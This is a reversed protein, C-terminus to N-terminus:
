KRAGAFWLIDVIESHGRSVAAYLATQKDLGFPPAHVDAGAAILTEVVEVHGGRVAAQLATDGPGFLPGNVNVGADILVEVMELHGRGAAEHLAGSTELGPTSNLDVGAAILERVRELSGEAVAARLAASGNRATLLGSSNQPSNKRTDKITLDADASLLIEVLIIHNKSVAAHLASQGSDHKSTYNVNVGAEILAKVIISHGRAAAAYLANDADYPLLDSLPQRARRAAATQHQMIRNFVKHHSNRAALYLASGNVPSVKADASSKLLIHVIKLNGASAAKQLPTEYLVGTDSRTSVKSTLELRNRTNPNAGFALLIEVAELRNHLTAAYLASVGKFSANGNFGNSSHSSVSALIRYKTQDGMLDGQYEIVYQILSCHDTSLAWRLIYDMLRTWHGGFDEETVYLVGYRDALQHAMDHSCTQYHSHSQRINTDIVDRINVDTTPQTTVNYAIHEIVKCLACPPATADKIGTATDMTMQSERTDITHDDSQFCKRRGAYPSSQFFISSSIYYFRDRDNQDPEHSPPQMAEVRVGGIPASSHWHWVVEKCSTPDHRETFVLESPASKVQDAQIEQLLSNGTYDELDLDMYGRPAWRRPCIFFSRGNVTRDSLIRLLCDGADTAEAFEVGVGAVHAFAEESLIKTKVYWPSIVNVRSGYYVATRRLSHMIGRMAWKSACYQPARPCDLFAAGSGILILCTDEQSSSSVQGNQKIFHHSALKVTYLTGVLNVDITKLDPREPENGDGAYSFVQDNQHIGCNAVVYSIKGNPSFSVAEQFLRVQDEWKSADCEVFKVSEQLSQKSNKEGKIDLDGICVLAGASILARVYAEGLGNAGGTIIATNEKLKSYDFDVDCNVQGTPTYSAM